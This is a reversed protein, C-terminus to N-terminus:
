PTQEVQTLVLDGVTVHTKIQTRADQLAEQWTEAEVLFTLRTDEGDADGVIYTSARYTNM